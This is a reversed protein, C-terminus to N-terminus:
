AKEPPSQRGKEGNDTHDIRRSQAHKPLPTRRKARARNGKGRQPLARDRLLNRLATETDRHNYRFECEKVHLALTTRAIGNFKQLRRKAFSWFSEIGNLHRGQKDVYEESHNISHHTYGDLGLESFGRWKDTYVTSGQEVVLRVIPQLTGKDARKIIQTYVVGGRQLIGFVQVKHERRAIKAKEMYESYPLIKKYRALLARLRKVGRGGFESQDMEVEGFLRPARRTHEFIIERFHRYWHNACPRSVKALKAAETADLDMAFYRALANRKKVPIRPARIIM